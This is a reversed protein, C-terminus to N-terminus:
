SAAVDYFLVHDQPREAAENPIRKKRAPRSLAQPSYYILSEKAGGIRKVQMM